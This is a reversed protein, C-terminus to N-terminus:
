TNHFVEDLEELVLEIHTLANMEAVDLVAGPDSERLMHLHICKLNRFSITHITSSRRLFIGYLTTRVHNLGELNFVPSESFLVSSMWLTSGRVNLTLSELNCFPKPPQAWGYPRVHIYLGGPLGFHKLTSPCSQLIGRLPMELGDVELSRLSPMIKLTQLLNTVLESPITGWSIHLHLAILKTYRVSLLAQWPKIEPANRRARESLKREEPTLDAKILIIQLEEVLGASEPYAQLLKSFREPRTTMGRQNPSPFEQGYLTITRFLLPRCYVTLSHCTQSLSKLGYSGNDQALLPWYDDIINYILELPIKPICQTNLDRKGGLENLHFLRASKLKKLM